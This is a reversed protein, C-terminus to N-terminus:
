MLGKPLRLSGRLGNNVPIIVACASGLLPGQSVVLGSQAREEPDSAGEGITGTLRRPQRKGELTAVVLVSVMFEAKVIPPM